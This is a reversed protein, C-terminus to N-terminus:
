HKETTQSQASQPYPPGLPPWSDFPVVHGCPCARKETGGEGQAEACVARGAPCVRRGKQSWKKLDRLGGLARRPSCGVFSGPVRVEALSFKDAQTLLLQKFRPTPANPLPIFAGLTWAAVGLPRM